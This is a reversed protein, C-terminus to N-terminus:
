WFEVRYIYKIKTMKSIGGSIHIGAMNLRAELSVNVGMDDLYSFEVSLKKLANSALRSRKLHQWSPEINIWPSNFDWRKGKTEEGFEYAIKENSERNHATNYAGSMDWFPTSVGGEVTFNRNESEDKELYVTKVGLSECLEVFAQQKEKLFYDHFGSLPVYNNAMTESMGYATEISPHNPPFRFGFEKAKSITYCPFGGYSGTARDPIIVIQRRHSPELFSNHIIATSFLQVGKELIKQLVIPPFSGLVLNIRLKKTEQNNDLLINDKNVTIAYQALKDWSVAWTYVANCRIGWTTVAAGTTASGFLSSDVLILIREDKRIELKTALNENKNQPINGYLHIFSFERFDPITGCFAAFREISDKTRTDLEFAKEFAKLAEDYKKQGYFVEGLGLYADGLGSLANTHEPDIALVKTYAAIAKGYTEKGVDAHMLGTLVDINKPDADAEDYDDNQSYANGLSVYALGLLLLADIHEPDIALAKTYAAIAQDYDKNQYYANGLSILADIHEPDLALAKNYAAIAQDYDEKNVYAHGLYLLVYIQEPDIALVKNYAAIVKDYDEKGNFAEGLCLLAEINEPDIALVKNYAAIAQDYNKQGYYARGLNSLV